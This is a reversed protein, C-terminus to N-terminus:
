RVAASGLRAALGARPLAAFDAIRRIGLRRMATATDVPLRLAEVPLGALAERLRGPPVVLGSASGAGTGREGYRAVAAAAGPTDAVAARAAYGFRALRRVLDTRLAAEGGQLHACGTIDLVIGDPGDLGVWPTYRGCWDALGELARADAAPDAEAVVLGPGLARADALSMGPVIGLVQAPGGAATVIVRGYQRATAVLPRNGWDPRRRVLRDTALRPLWLSLVRRFM